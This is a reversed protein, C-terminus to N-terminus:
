WRLGASTALAPVVAAGPGGPCHGRLPVMRQQRTLARVGALIALPDVDLPADDLGRQLRGADIRVAGRAVPRGEEDRGLAPIYVGDSVEAALDALRAVEGGALVLHEPYPALAAPRTAHGTSAAGERAAAASDLVPRRAIGAEILTVPRRPVGEADFARPLTRADGADDGLHVGAAAVPTGLRGALPGSGLALDVGFASRLRDLVWAVAAHGLVVPGAAPWRAGSGAALLALAEDVPPEVAGVGASVVEVTRGGAAGCARTVHHSRQEAARVGASSAVAIRAAGPETSITLGDRQEHAAEADLVSPDFGTHQPVDQPGPLVPAPWARAQQARLRATKGTRALDHARRAVAEGGRGDVIATLTITLGRGREWVALAQGDAGLAELGDAALTQLESLSPAAM